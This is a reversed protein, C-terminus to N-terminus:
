AFDGLEENLLKLCVEAIKKSIADPVGAIGSDADEVGPLARADWQAALKVRRAHGAPDGQAVSKPDSGVSKLELTDVGRERETYAVRQTTPAELGKDLLYLLSQYGFVMEALSVNKGGLAKGGIRIARSLNRQTIAVAKMATRHCKIALHQTRSVLGGMKKVGRQANPNKSVRGYTLKFAEKRAAAWGTQNYHGTLLQRQNEQMIRIAKDLKPISENLREDQVAYEQAKERTDLARELKSQLQKIDGQHRAYRTQNEGSLKSLQEPTAAAEGASAPRWGQALMEHTVKDKAINLQNRDKLMRGITRQVAARYVPMQGAGQSRVLAGLLQLLGAIELTVEGSVFRMVMGSIRLLMNGILVGSSAGAAMKAWSAYAAVKLAQQEATPVAAVGPVRHLSAFYDIWEPTWPRMTPPDVWKNFASRQQTVFNELDGIQYRKAWRSLINTAM